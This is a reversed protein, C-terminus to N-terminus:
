GGVYPNAIPARIDAVMALLALSVFFFVYFNVMTAAVERPITYPKRTVTSVGSEVISTAIHGGDLPLVPLLNMVGLAISITSVLVVLYFLSSDLSQSMLRSLGVASILRDKEAVSSPNVAGEVYRQPTSLASGM